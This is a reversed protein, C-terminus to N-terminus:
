GMAAVRLVTNVHVVNEMILRSFNRAAAVFRLSAALRYTHATWGAASV